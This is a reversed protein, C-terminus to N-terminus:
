LHLKVRKLSVEAENETGEGRMEEVTIFCM